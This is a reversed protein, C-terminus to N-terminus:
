IVYETTATGAAPPPAQHCAAMQQLPRSLLYGQMEDVGAQALTERQRPTEVGEGIVRVGLQHALAVIHRILENAHPRRIFQKDLKIADLPFDLIRALSSYGTGFDDMHIEIGLQRLGQLRQQLLALSPEAFLSETIEFIIHQPPLGSQVMAQEVQAIFPKELLQKLSLNVAIKCHQQDPHEGLYAAMSHFAQLMVQQGLQQIQNSQEALPIFEDPAVWGLEEDYWRCLAEFAVIRGDAIAAIPQFQLHLTRDQLAQQLRRTVQQKRARKQLQTEEFYVSGRGGRLKAEHLAIHASHLYFHSAQGAQARGRALGISLHLGNGAEAQRCGSLLSSMLSQDLGSQSLASLRADAVLLAFRDGGLRAPYCTSHHARHFAAAFEDLTQGLTVLLQDCRQSGMSENLYYFDDIDIIACLIEDGTAMHRALVDTFGQRNLLGTLPDHTALQQLQRTREAIRQELLLNSNSVTEHAAKLQQVLIDNRHRLRVTGALLRYNYEHAVMMGACYALMSFAFVWEAAPATALFLVGPLLTLAIYLKGVLRLSALLASAGAAVSSSIVCITPLVALATPKQWAWCMLAPWIAGSLALLLLLQRPPQRSDVPAQRLRQYAPRYLSLLVISALWAHLWKDALPWLYVYSALATSLSLLTGPLFQKGTNDLLQTRWDHYPHSAPM